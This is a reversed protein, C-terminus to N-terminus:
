KRETALTYISYLLYRYTQVLCNHINKNFFHEILTSKYNSNKLNPYYKAIKRGCWELALEFNGLVVFTDILLVDTPLNATLLLLTKLNLASVATFYLLLTSSLKVPQQVKCQMKNSLIWFPSTEELFLFFLYSYLYLLIVSYILLLTPQSSYHRYIQTIQLALQLEFYKWKNYLVFAINSM